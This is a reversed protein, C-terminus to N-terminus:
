AAKLTMVERFCPTNSANPQPYFVSKGTTHTRARRSPSQVAVLPMDDDTFSFFWPSQESFRKSLQMHQYVLNPWSADTIHMELILLKYPM